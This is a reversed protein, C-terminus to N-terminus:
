KTRVRRFSVGTTWFRPKGVDVGDRQKTTVHYGFYLRDGSITIRVRDIETHQGERSTTVLVDQEEVRWTGRFATGDNRVVYTHDKRYNLEIGAYDFSKWRGVLQSGLSTEAGAASLASLLLVVTIRALM